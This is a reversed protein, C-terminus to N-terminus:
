EYHSAEPDPREGREDCDAEAQAKCHASDAWYLILCNIGIAIRLTNNVGPNSIAVASCALLAMAQATLGRSAQKLSVLEASGSVSVISDAKNADRRTRPLWKM